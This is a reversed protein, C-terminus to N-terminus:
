EMFSLLYILLLLFMVFFFNGLNKKCKKHKTVSKKREVEERNINIRLQQQM